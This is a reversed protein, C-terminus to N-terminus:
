FMVVGAFSVVFYVEEEEENLNRHAANTALKM